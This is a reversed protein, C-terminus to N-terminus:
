YYVVVLGYGGTSGEDGGAGIRFGTTISYQVADPDSYMPPTERMGTLTVGRIISSHIFGSGGGGGTM